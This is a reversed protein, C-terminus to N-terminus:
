YDYDDYPDYNDGGVQDNGFFFDSNDSDYDDGFFGNLRSEAEQAEILRRRSELVEHHRESMEVLLDNYIKSQKLAQIDDEDIGQNMDCDFKISTSDGCESKLYVIMAALADLATEDFNCMRLGLTINVANRHGDKHDKTEGASSEMFSDYLLAAGCKGSVQNDEPKISDDEEEAEDDSELSSGGFDVIDKLGSKLFGFGKQGISNVSNMMSASVGPKKKVARTGFKNGSIDILHERLSTSSDEHKSKSIISALVEGLSSLGDARISCSRLLLNRIAGCEVADFLATAGENGIDINNSLDLTDISCCGNLKQCSRKLAKALAIAGRDSICNNSLNLCKVCGPNGTMALALANAGIDGVGCSSIDLTDIVPLYPHHHTSTNEQDTDEDEIRSAIKL